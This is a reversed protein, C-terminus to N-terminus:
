KRPHVRLSDLTLAIMAVADGRIPIEDLPAIKRYIEVMAMENATLPKGLAHIMVQWIEPHYESLALRMLFAPDTDLAAAMAAVKDLPLKADGTKLMSIFNPRDYGIERAIQRQTKGSRRIMKDLFEAVTYFHKVAM